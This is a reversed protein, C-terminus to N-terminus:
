KSRGKAVVKKTKRTKKPPPTPGPSGGDDDDGPHDFLASPDQAPAEPQEEEQQADVKFIGLTPAGAMMVVFDPAEDDTPIGASKCLGSLKSWLGTEALTRDESLALVQSVTQKGEPPLLISFLDRLHLLELQTLKLEWLPRPQLNAPRDTVKKAM